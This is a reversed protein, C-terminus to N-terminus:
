LHTDLWCLQITKKVTPPVLLVQLLGVFRGGIQVKVRKRVVVEREPDNSPYQLRDWSWM